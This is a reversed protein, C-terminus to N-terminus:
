LVVLIVLTSIKMFSPSSILSYLGIEKCLYTLIEITIKDMTIDIMMKKPFANALYKINYMKLLM